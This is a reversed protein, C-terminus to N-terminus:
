KEHTLTVRAFPTLKGKDDNDIRWKWSDSKPLYTFTTHTASELEGFVFPIEDGNRKATAFSTPSIGGYVDLWVCSYTSSKQDWGIFIIAEYVAAGNADHEHSIEHVRLYQHGLVWEATVDHVTNQGAITGEMRWHGLLRDLLPDRFVPQQATAAIFPALGITIALIAASLKMTRAMTGTGGQLSAQSRRSSSTGILLHGALLDRCGPDQFHAAGQLIPEHGMADFVKPYLL